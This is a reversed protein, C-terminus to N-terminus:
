LPLLAATAERGHDEADGSGNDFWGALRDFCREFGHFGLVDFHPNVLGEPGRDLSTWADRQFVWELFLFPIFELGRGCWTKLLEASM